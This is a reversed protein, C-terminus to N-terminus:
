PLCRKYVDEHPYKALLKMVVYRTTRIIKAALVMYKFRFIRIEHRYESAHPFDFKNLLFMNHGRTMMKLVAEYAWFLKLLFVGVAKDDMVEKIYDESIGRKEYSIVM